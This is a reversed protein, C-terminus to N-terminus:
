NEILGLTKFLRALKEPVAGILHGSLEEPSAKMGEMVWKVPMYISGQCYMELLFQMDEELPKGTRERIRDTYFQLILHFDYEKLCNQEDLKFDKKFFEQEQKIFRFRMSGCNAARHNKRHRNNEHM